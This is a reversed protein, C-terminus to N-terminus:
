VMNIYFNSYLRSFIIGAKETWINRLPLIINVNPRVKIKKVVVNKGENQPTIM